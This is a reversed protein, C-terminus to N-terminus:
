KEEDRSSVYPSEPVVGAPSILILSTSNVKIDYLVHAIITLVFM